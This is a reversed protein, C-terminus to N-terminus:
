TLMCQLHLHCSFLLFMATANILDTQEEKTKHSTPDLTTRAPRPTADQDGSTSESSTSAARKTGHMAAQEAAWEGTSRRKQKKLDADQSQKKPEQSDSKKLMAGSAASIKSDRSQSVRDLSASTLSPGGVAHEPRLSASSTDTPANEGENPADMSPRGDSNSTEGAGSNETSTSFTAGSLSLNDTSETEHDSLAGINSLDILPRQRAAM